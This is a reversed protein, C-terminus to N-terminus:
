EERSARDRTAVKAAIGGLVVLGSAVGTVYVGAGRDQPRPPEGFFGTTAFEGFLWTALACLLAITAAGLYSRRWALGASVAGLGMVVWVSSLEIGLMWGDGFHEDYEWPLFGGAVVVAAAGTLFRRFGEDVRALDEQVPRYQTM